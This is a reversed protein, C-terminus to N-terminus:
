NASKTRIAYYIEILPGFFWVQDSSLVFGPFCDCELNEDNWNGNVCYPIEGAINIARGGMQFMDGVDLPGVDLASDSSEDDSLTWSDWGWDSFYGM